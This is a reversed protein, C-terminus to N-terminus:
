TAKKMQDESIKKEDKAMEVGHDLNKKEEPKRGNKLISRLKKRNTIQLRSM